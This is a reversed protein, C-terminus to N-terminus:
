GAMLVDHAIKLLEETTFPKGIFGDTQIGQLAEQVEKESGSTVIIKVDPWIKRLAAIIAKGGMVPLVHDTIVLRIGDPNASFCGVAEL